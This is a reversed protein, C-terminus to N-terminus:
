GTKAYLFTSVGNRLIFFFRPGKGPLNVTKCNKGGEGARVARDGGVPSDNRGYEM